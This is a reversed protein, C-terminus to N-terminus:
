GRDMEQLGTDRLWRVADVMGSLPTNPTRPPWRTMPRSARESGLMDVSAWDPFLAHVRGRVKWKGDQCGGKRDSPPVGDGYSAVEVVPPAQMSQM